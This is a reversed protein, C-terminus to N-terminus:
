GTAAITDRACRAIMARPGRTPVGVVVTGRAQCLAASRRGHHQCILCLARLWGAPHEDNTRLALTHYQTVVLPSAHM